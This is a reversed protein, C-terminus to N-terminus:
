VRHGEGARAHIGRTFLSVFETSEGVDNEFSSFSFNKEGLLWQMESLKSISQPMVHSPSVTTWVMPVLALILDSYFIRLLSFHIM